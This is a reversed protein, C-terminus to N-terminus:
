FDFVWIKKKSFRIDCLESVVPPYMLKDTKRLFFIKIESKQAVIHDWRGWFVDVSLKSTKKALNQYFIRHKSKKPRVAM